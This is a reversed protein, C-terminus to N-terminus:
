LPAKPKIGPSKMHFEDHVCHSQPVEVFTKPKRRSLIMGAKCEDQPKMESVFSPQNFALFITLKKNL